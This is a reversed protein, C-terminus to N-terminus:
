TTAPIIPTRPMPATSQMAPSACNRAQDPATACDAHGYAKLGREMEEAMKLWAKWSGPLKNGDAFIKLLAAYDGGDIWYVGVAPPPRDELNTM